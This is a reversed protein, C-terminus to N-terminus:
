ESSRVMLDNGGSRRSSASRICNVLSEDRPRLLSITRSVRDTTAPRGWLTSAKKTSLVILSESAGNTVEHLQSNNFVILTGEQFTRSCIRLQAAPTPVDIM